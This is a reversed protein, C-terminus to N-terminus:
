EKKQMPRPSDDDDSDAELFDEDLTNKELKKWSTVSEKTPTLTCQKDFSWIDKGDNQVTGKRNLGRRVLNVGTCDDHIDNLNELHHQFWLHGIADTCTM